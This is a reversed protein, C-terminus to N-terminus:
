NEGEYKYGLRHMCMVIGGRFAMGALGYPSGGSTLESQRCSEQDKLAENPTTNPRLWILKTEEQYTSNYPTSACASLLIYLFTFGFLKM